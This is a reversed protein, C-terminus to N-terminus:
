SWPVPGTGDTWARLGDGDVCVIGCQRAYDLAPATFDSTTVLVAVDAEHVTFCTGGFRQMDQSGVKNGDAYRKCQVVMRRGDPTRGVVDAGLDCAGGVVEVDLCADRLCLDAIAEEFGDPDLEVYDVAEVPDALVVTPEEGAPAPRVVADPPVTEGEPVPVPVLVERYAVPRTAEDAATAQPPVVAAVTARPPVPAPAPAAGPT